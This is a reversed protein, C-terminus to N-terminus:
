ECGRGGRGVVSAMEFNPHDDSIRNVVGVCCIIAHSLFAIVMSSEQFSPYMYM